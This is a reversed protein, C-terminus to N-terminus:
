KKQQTTEEQGNWPFNTIGNWTKQLLGNNKHMPIIETKGWPGKVRYQFGFFFGEQDKGTLSRGVLSAVKGMITGAIPVADASKPMVNIVQDITLGVFDTDGNLTIKAPIADVVLDHTAAIGNLIDFHGTISNFTLGEQYIDSFDLQARKIWQAMALVGLVRGFGPEISLIRGNKFDIDVRGKLDILSFQYPAADWNVAFDIVSSTETLDKTLNLHELFDGTRALEMRGELHTKSRIDVGPFNLWEGGSLVIKLDAGTLVLSKFSVGGPIRETELILHGLNVSRWLTKDSTIFLLPMTAPVLNLGTEAVVDSVVASESPPQKFASFDLTALDLIIKETGKLDVPIRMKGSAFASSIDGAWYGREPKLSLDFEGLLTNKWQAHQSHIKIQRINNEAAPTEAPAMGVDSSNGQPSALGLWDQLNLQDQNIELLLGPDESQEATGSGVLVHGSQIRQQALNVKIAAHVQDNYNLAIPLLASEGLGFSLSLPKKQSKSKALLGPLDLAVGVLDSQVVLESLSGPYPLGLKLQYAAEGKALAWGPIQFQQQLEAIGTKGTIKVFTQQHDAKDITVKIGRGLTEAHMTNSYVGGETFKLEGNIKSIGLGLATVNLSAQNLKAMGYVKPMIGEALPLVLDLAVTTQGQPVVADILFGVQEVLPSQKLFKFVDTIEGDFEGKVSLLKSTGLAPNIVTAKTINLNNSQGQYIECIMEKQLITVQGAINSLEPWGPAYALNLQELDLLAEFVGENSKAPFVGLKAVYLLEGKTVRGGLFANDFWVVDAPKMVKTPFYHKVQSIDDSVFSSQLDLFPPAKTKPLILSLRNISQLGHLNLEMDQSAVTWDVDTQRWNISGKLKKIEFAERFFDPALLQADNIELHLNGSKETGQIQGTVNNIGPMKALPAVSLGAFKGNVALKNEDLDAFLAFEALSGTLQAQALMNTQESPMPVFFQALKSAEQLDLQKTFASIKHTYNGDKTFGVISFVADPWDTVGEAGATELFFKDVDLQWQNDAVRWHFRTNLQNVPFIQNNQRSIKMQQLQAEGSISVLQSHQVKTWIKFNGTGTAIKIALPLEVAGWESLHLNKGELYLAGNIALPEFMNGQFDMAVTLSDGYKKPLTMMVNIKHQEAVNIIALDVSEFKLAKAHSKEDQYSIESQLVEYKGGELLWLPQNDGAKIGDIAFSGDQKRIVSLKVGVLTVRSASLLERNVLMDFMNLGLRIEKLQIAPLENAIVSAVTINKLVLEPSFGRMKAGLKGIVVPAGLQEGVHTSLDAKYHEIESLLLRVCTLIVALTVLSWFVLHRTVRKIHHIV